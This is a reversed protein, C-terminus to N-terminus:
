CCMYDESTEIPKEAPATAAEIAKREKQLEEMRAGIADWAESAYVRRTPEPMLAGGPAVRDLCTYTYKEHKLAGCHICRREGSPLPPAYEHEQM